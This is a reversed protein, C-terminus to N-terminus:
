EGVAGTGGVVVAKLKTNSMRPSRGATNASVLQTPLHRSDGLPTILFFFYQPFSAEPPSRLYWYNRRLRRRRRSM